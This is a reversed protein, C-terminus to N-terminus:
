FMVTLWDTPLEDMETAASRQEKLAEFLFLVWCAPFFWHWHLRRLEVMATLPLFTVTLLQEHQRGGAALLVLLLSPWLLVM